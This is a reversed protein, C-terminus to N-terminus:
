ENKTVDEFAKDILWNKFNIETDIMIEQKTQNYYHVIYKKKYENLLNQLEESWFSILKNDIGHFMEKLWGVASYIDGEHSVKFFGDDKIEVEFIKGDLRELKIM